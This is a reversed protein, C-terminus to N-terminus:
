EMKVLELLKPHIIPRDGKYSDCDRIEQIKKRLNDVYVNYWRYIFYGAAIILIAIILPRLLYIVIAAIIVLVVIAIIDLASLTRVM